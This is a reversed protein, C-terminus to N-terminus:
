IACLTIIKGVDDDILLICVTRVLTGCLLINLQGFFLVYSRPIRCFVWSQITKKNNNYFAMIILTDILRAFVHSEVWQHYKCAGHSRDALWAHSGRVSSMYIYAGHSREASWVGGGESSIQLHVAFDLGSIVGRKESIINRLVTVGTALDRGRDGILINTKLCSCSSRFYCKGEYWVELRM